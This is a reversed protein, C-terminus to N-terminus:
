SRGGEKAMQAAIQSALNPLLGQVANLMAASQAQVSGSPAAAAPMASAAEPPAPQRPKRGRRRLKADVAAVAPPAPPPPAPPPPPVPGHPPLSPVQPASVAERPPDPPLPQVVAANRGATVRGLESRVRQLEQEIRQAQALLTARKAEAGQQKREAGTRSADSRARQGRQEWRAQEAQQKQEDRAVRQLQRQLREIRPPQRLADAGFVEGRQAGKPPRVIGKALHVATVPSPVVQRGNCSCTTQAAGEATRGNRWAEIFFPRLTMMMEHSIHAGPYARQLYAVVMSFYSPPPLKDERSKWAM